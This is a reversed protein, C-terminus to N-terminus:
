SDLFHQTDEDSLKFEEKIKKAIVAEDIVLDRMIRIMKSINGEREEERIGQEHLKRAFESSEHSFAYAQAREDASLQLLKDAAESMETSEKAIMELEEM